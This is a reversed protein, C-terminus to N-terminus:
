GILRKWHRDDAERKQNGIENQKQTAASYPGWRGTWAFVRQRAQNKEQGGNGRLELVGEMAKKLIMYGGGQDVLIELSDKEETGFIRRRETPLAM